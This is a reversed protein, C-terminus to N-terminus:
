GPASRKPRIRAMLTTDHRPQGRHDRREDPQRQGTASGAITLPHTPLVRLQLSLHLLEDRAQGIQRVQLRLRYGDRPSGGGLRQLRIQQLPQLHLKGAVGQPIQLPGILCEPQQGVGDIQPLQQDVQHELLRDAVVIWHTIDEEDPLACGLLQHVGHQYVLQHVCELVLLHIQVRQHMSHLAIIGSGREM